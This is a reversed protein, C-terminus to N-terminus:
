IKVDLLKQAMEDATKIVAVNAAFSYRAVLLNIAEGELSVNPAAVLGDANAYPAGPEAITVNAPSIATYTAAVGGGPQATQEVQVPQYAAPADAFGAGPLAGTTRVNAINAASAELRRTAANLGSTAISLVNTM